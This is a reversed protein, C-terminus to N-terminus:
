KSLYGIVREANKELSHTDPDVVVHPKQPVEYPHEADTKLNRKVYVWIPKILTDIKKRTSRFPAIVSVIVLSQKALVFALRAVRMNHLDRESKSFGAGRSISERMEDGDLVTAGLKEKLVRALTTKGSGSQGTLWIIPRLPPNAKRTRTGSIAETDSDLVIRRIAYGVDRGYCIEDIDPVTIIKVLAGYKKLAARITRRREQVTYPNTRSLKTDRVAIIIPKKKKLVTEVLKKHGDHFPQWRGVFLSAQHKEKKM